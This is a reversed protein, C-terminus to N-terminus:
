IRWLESQGWFGIRLSWFKCSCRWRQLTSCKEFLFFKKTKNQELSSTANHIESVSSRLIPELDSHRASSHIYTSVTSTSQPSKHSGSATTSGCSTSV